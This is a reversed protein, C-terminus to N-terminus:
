KGERMGPSAADRIRFAAPVKRECNTLETPVRRAGLIEAEDFIVRRPPLLKSVSDFDNTAAITVVDEASFVPLGALPFTQDPQQSRLSVRSPCHKLQELRLYTQIRVGLIRRARTAYLEHNTVITEMRDDIHSAVIHDPTQWVIDEKERHEL